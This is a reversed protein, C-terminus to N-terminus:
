FLFEYDHTREMASIQFHVMLGESLPDTKSMECNKLVLTFFGTEVLPQTENLPKLLSKKGVWYYSLKPINEPQLCTPVTYSIIRVDTYYAHSMNFRWTTGANEPFPNLTFFDQTSSMEPLVVEFVAVAGIARGLLVDIDKMDLPQGGSVELSLKGVNRVQIETIAGNQCFSGVSVNESSITYVHKDPCSDTPQIQRLGTSFKFYTTREAPPNLNWTFTRSFKQFVHHEKPEINSKTKDSLEGIDRIIQVTFVDEPQSCSFNLSTDNRLIVSSQCVQSICVECQTNIGASTNIHIITGEEVTINLEAGGTLESFSSQFFGLLLLFCTFRWIGM